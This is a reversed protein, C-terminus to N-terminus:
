SNTRDPDTPAWPEMDNFFREMREIHVVKKKKKYDDHDDTM